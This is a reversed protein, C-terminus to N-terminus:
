TDCVYTRSTGWLETDCVFTCTVWLQETDCASTETNKSRARSRWRSSNYSLMDEDPNPKAQFVKKLGNLVSTKLIFIIFMISGRSINLIGFILSFIPSNIHLSMIEFGWLIGMVLFLKTFISLNEKMRNKKVNRRYYYQNFLTYFYLLEMSLLTGPGSSTTYLTSTFSFITCLWNM